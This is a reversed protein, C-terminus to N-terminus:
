LRAPANFEAVDMYDSASYHILKHELSMSQVLQEAEVLDNNNYLASLRALELRLRRQPREVLLQAFQEADRLTAEDPLPEAIVVTPEQIDEYVKATIGSVLHAM